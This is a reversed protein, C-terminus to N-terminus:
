GLQSEYEESPYTLWWVPLTTPSQAAIDDIFLM